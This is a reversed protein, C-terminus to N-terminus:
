SKKSPKRKRQLAVLTTYKGSPAERAEGEQTAPLDPREDKKRSNENMEMRFTGDPLAAITLTMKRIPPESQRSYIMLNLKDRGPISTEPFEEHLRLFEARVQESSPYMKGRQAARLIPHGWNPHRHKPREKQPHLKIEVPLKEAILTVKRGELRKIRLRAFHGRFGKAKEDESLAFGRIWLKLTPLGDPGLPEQDKCIVLQQSLRQLMSVAQSEQGFRFLGEIIAEIAPDQPSAIRKKLPKKAPRPPLGAATGTFANETHMGMM